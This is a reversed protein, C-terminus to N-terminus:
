LHQWSYGTRFCQDHRKIQILLTYYLFLIFHSLLSLFRGRIGPSCCSALIWSIDRIKFTTVLLSYLTPPHYTHPVWGFSVTCLSKHMHSLPHISIMTISFHMQSIDGPILHHAPLLPYSISLPIICHEFIVYFSWFYPMLFCLKQDIIFGWVPLYCKLTSLHVASWLTGM